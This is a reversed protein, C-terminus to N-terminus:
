ESPNLTKKFRFEDSIREWVCRDKTKKINLKYIGKFYYGKLGLFNKTELFVIRTHNEKIIKKIHTKNKIPVSFSEYIYKEDKSMENLWLNNKKTKQSKPFWSYCGFGPVDVYTKPLYGRKKQKVGLIKFFDRTNLLFDNDLYSFYGKKKFFDVTKNVWPQFSPSKTIKERIKEIAKNIQSHIKELNKDCNIKIIQGKTLKVINRNRINDKKEQEKNKHYPENIEVAMKIQPFYLDIFRRSGDPFSVYQQFVIEINQDNLLHWIRTICYLELGKHKIKTLSRTLYEKKYDLTEM